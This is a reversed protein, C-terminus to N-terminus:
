GHMQSCRPYFNVRNITNASWAPVGIRSDPFAFWAYLRWYPFNLQYPISCFLMCQCNRHQHGLVVLTHEPGRNRRALNYPCFNRATPVKCDFQQDHYDNNTPSFISNSYKCLCPGAWQSWVRSFCLLSSQIQLKHSWPSLPIPLSSVIFVM